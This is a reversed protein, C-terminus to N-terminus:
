ITIDLQAKLSGNKTITINLFNKRMDLSKGMSKWNYKGYQNPPLILPSM